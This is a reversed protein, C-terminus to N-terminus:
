NWHINYDLTRHGGKEGEPPGLFREQNAFQNYTTTFRDSNSLDDEGGGILTHYDNPPFSAPQKVFLNVVPQLSEKSNRSLSEKSIQNIQERSNHSLSEKSIQYM